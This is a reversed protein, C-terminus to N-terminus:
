SSGSTNSGGGGPKNGSSDQINGVINGWNIAM